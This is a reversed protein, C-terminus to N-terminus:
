GVLKTIIASALAGAIVAIISAYALFRAHGAELVRVRRECEEIKNQTLTFSALAQQSREEMRGLSVAMESITERMADMKSELRTADMDTIIARNPINNRDNEHANKVEAVVHM